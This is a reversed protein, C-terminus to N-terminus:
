WKQDKRWGYYADTDKAMEIPSRRPNGSAKPPNIGPITKEAAPLEGDTNAVSKEIAGLSAEFMALLKVAKPGQKETILDAIEHAAELDKGLAIFVKAPDEAIDRVIDVFVPFLPVEDNALLEKYDDGYKEIAEENFADRKKNWADVAQQQKVAKEDVPDAKKEAAPKETDAAPKQADRWEERADAWDEVSEFTEMVPKDAGKATWPKKPDAVPEKAATKAEALQTQLQSRELELRQRNEREQALEARATRTQETAKGIRKSAIGKVEDKSLVVKEKGEGRDVEFGGDDTWGTRSRPTPTEEGPEDKTDAKSETPTDGTPKDETAAVPTAKDETPKDEITVGKDEEPTMVEGEIVPSTPLVGAETSTAIGSLHAFENAAGSADTAVETM